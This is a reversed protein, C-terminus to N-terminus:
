GAGGPGQCLRLGSDWESPPPRRTAALRPATAQRAGALSGFVGEPGRVSQAVPALPAKRHGQYPAPRSYSTPTFRSGWLQVPIEQCTTTGLPGASQRAGLVQGLPCFRSVLVFHATALAFQM